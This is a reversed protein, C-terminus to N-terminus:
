SLEFFGARQGIGNNDGGGSGFGSRQLEESRYRHQWPHIRRSLPICESMM